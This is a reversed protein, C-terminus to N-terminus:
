KWVCLIFRMLLNAYIGAVVDDGVVGWGRPLRDQCLRIPYPKWIDFLRFLIFGLVVSSWSFSIGALTVLMGVVEDLVIKQSDKKGFFIEAQTSVWCAFFSFTVLTILYSIPKLDKLLFFLVVGVLSGLTGPFLPVYGVGAGTAIFLIIKKLPM